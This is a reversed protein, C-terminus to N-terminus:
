ASLWAFLAQTHTRNTITATAEPPSRARAQIAHNLSDLGYHFPTLFSSRDRQGKNHSYIYIYVPQNADDLGAIM